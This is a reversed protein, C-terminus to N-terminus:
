NHQEQLGLKRELNKKVSERWENDLIAYEMATVWGGNGDTFCDVRKAELTAGAVKELWGRMPANDELTCFHVRHIGKTEFVYKLLIYLVATSYGKGVAEPALVIGVECSSHLGDLNFVRTGGIVNKDEPLTDDFITFHIRKPDKSQKERQEAVEQVSTTKPMWPMFRYTQPHSRLAAVQEDEASTPTALRIRKDPSHLIIPSSAAQQAEMAQSGTTLM